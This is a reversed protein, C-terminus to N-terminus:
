LLMASAANACPSTAVAGAYTVPDRLYTSAVIVSTRAIWLVTEGM